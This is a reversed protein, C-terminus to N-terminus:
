QWAVPMLTSEHVVVSWPTAWCCLSDSVEIIALPWCPNLAIALLCCFPLLLWPGVAGDFIGLALPM